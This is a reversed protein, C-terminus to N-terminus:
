KLEGELKLTNGELWAKLMAHSDVELGFMNNLFESFDLYALISEKGSYFKPFNMKNIESSLEADRPAKIVLGDPKVVVEAEECVYSNGGTKECEEALKDTIDKPVGNFSIDIFITPTGEGNYTLDLLAQSYELSAFIKGTFKESVNRFNQWTEEDIADKLGMFDVIDLLAEGSSVNVMLFGEGNKVMSEPFREKSVLGKVRTLLEKDLTREEGNLVLMKEKSYLKTHVEFEGEKHTYSVAIVEGDSLVSKVLSPIANEKSKIKSLFEEEGIYFLVYSGLKEMVPTYEEGAFSVKEDFFGMDSLFQKLEDYCSVPGFILALGDTGTLFLLEKLNEYFEDTDINYLDFQARVLNDLMGELGLSDLLAEGVDTKKLSDYLEHLDPVYYFSFFDKPLYALLGAFVSVAFIVLIIAAVKKLASVEQRDFISEIKPKRM